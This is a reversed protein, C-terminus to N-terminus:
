DTSDPRLYIDDIEKDTIPTDVEFKELESYPVTLDKSYVLKAVLYSLFYETLLLGVTAVISWLATCCLTYTASPSFAAIFYGVVLDFFAIINLYIKHASKQLREKKIVCNDDNDREVINTGPFCNKIVENKNGKCCNLLLVLAGALQFSLMLIFFM